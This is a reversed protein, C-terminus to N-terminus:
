SAVAATLKALTDTLWAVADVSDGFQLRAFGGGSGAAFALTTIQGRGDRPQLTVFTLDPAPFICISLHTSTPRYVAPETTAPM